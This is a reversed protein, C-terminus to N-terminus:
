LWRCCDTNVEKFDEWTLWGLRRSIAEWDCNGRHVLDHRLTRPQAKYESFKYGYLRTAPNSKFVAPTLLLFLTRDPDRESLPFTLGKKNELMVDINRAIQNRMTDYTIDHSIDSLVKAEVVVSFGTPDVVFIADVNTAGELNKKGDDSELVYPIFHRNILSQRLWNKYKEPAPLNAEFFLYLNGKFCEEWTIREPFPPENGYAKKMLRILQENRSESHFITMLCAATWFKEDKEIQCPGRMEEISKGKRDPHKALYKKYANASERYYKVHREPTWKAGKVTAFHERLKDGGFPLYVEHLVESEQTVTKEEIM